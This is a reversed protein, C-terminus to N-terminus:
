LIISDPLYVKIYPYRECYSAQYEYSYTETNVTRRFEDSAAIIRAVLPTGYTNVPIIQKPFDCQINGGDIIVNRRESGIPIANTAYLQISITGNKIRIDGFGVHDGIGITDTGEGLIAIDGRFIDIGVKGSLAGIGSGCHTNFRISITGDEIIIKGNSDEISGIAIANMGNCKIVLNGTSCIDVYDRLSGIGVAKAGEATIKIKSNNIRIKANGSINGIGVTNYGSVEIYIIGSIIQILSNSPNQGGGIAISINGSSCVKIIGTSALIINGYAQLASGGIGVHNSREAQVTLNGEGIIKLESTEPVRIGDYTIYNDGILNLVVNCNKGLIVAPKEYGRLKICDLTIQCTHNDPILISLNAIMDNKGQITIERERIVVDSYIDLALAELFIISDGNTEYIKKVIGDRPIRGNIEQIMDIIEQPIKPILVPGPRSIYYGQLYDVGLSVAYEFEEYTEIGEAIIKINNQAAFNILSTSIFQKKSNAHISHLISRDIKIYNPNYNLLNSEKSYKTGYDDLALQCGTEQLRKQILKLGDKNLLTTEKIEMVVNRFLLSYNHYLEEFDIDTLQHNSISNLFLKKNQFLEKNEKMLQLTNYFTYREINYLRGEKAALDLIEMPSLDITDPDTRMLAEYAFIEGTRADVIPQFHYQFLNHELLKQFHDWKNSITRDNDKPFAEEIQNIMTQNVLIHVLTGFLFVIDIGLFIRIIPRIADSSYFIFSLVVFLLDLCCLWVIVKFKGRYKQFDQWNYHMNESVKRIIELNYIFNKSNIYLELM